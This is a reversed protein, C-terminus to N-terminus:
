FRAQIPAVAQSTLAATASQANAAGARKVDVRGRGVKAAHVVIERAPGVVGRGLECALVEIRKRHSLQLLADRQEFGFDRSATINNLAGNVM